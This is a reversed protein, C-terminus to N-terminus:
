ISPHYNFSSKYPLLRPRISTNDRLRGASFSSFWSFVETPISSTWALIRVSFIWFLLSCKTISEEYILIMECSPSSPSTLLQQIVQLFCSSVPLQLFFSLIASKPSSLISSATSRDCSLSSNSSLHM